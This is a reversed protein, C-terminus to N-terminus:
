LCLSKGFLKNFLCVSAGHYDASVEVTVCTGRYVVVNGSNRAEGIGTEYRCLVSGGCHGRHSSPAFCVFPLGGIVSDVVYEEEAVGIGCSLVLHKVIGEVCIVHDTLFHALDTDVVVKRVVEADVNAENFSAM